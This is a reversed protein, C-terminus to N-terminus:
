TTYKYFIFNYLLNFCNLTKLKINNLISSHFINVGNAAAIKIIKKIAEKGYYRGDGGVVLTSEVLNSGLAEFIAQIFNETYHKQQFVKVAKRLGSTGPKQGEFSVTEIISVTYSTMISYCNSVM